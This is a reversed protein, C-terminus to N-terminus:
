NAQLEELQKVRQVTMTHLCEGQVLGEGTGGLMSTAQLNCEADRFAVWARQAAVLRKKRDTADPEDTGVWDKALVQYSKNLMKDASEYAAWTCQKMGANSQDADLCKKYVSEIAALAGKSDALAPLPLLALGFGFVWFGRL